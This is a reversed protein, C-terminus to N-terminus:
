KGEESKTDAEGRAIAVLRDIVKRVLLNNVLRERNEEKELRERVADEQDGWAKGLEAIRGEVEDESVTLGEARVVETLVLSHRLEREARPQLEERLEEEEKGVVKLYDSLSMRQERQVRGELQGLLDDVEEELAQPPYEVKAQEVVAEIVKEAYAEDARREKMQRIQDGIDERLAKLDPFNGVTRALDDDIGPLIRDFLRVLRVTFEVEESSGERPMELRFTRGEEPMMGELARYFGPAPYEDEPDLLVEAHEDKLFVSGDGARGEVDIVLADGPQAGRGEAPELVAHEQQLRELVDQIEKKAVKTGEPKVRLSRYDGLEVVPLLPVTFVYQLPALTMELLAGPAFPDIEERELAERYVKGALDDAAEQRITEEGFRQAIVSYPAKGKRFGAITTQRAIRQAARQMEQQVREETVDVTVRIVRAGAPEVAIKIESEKM